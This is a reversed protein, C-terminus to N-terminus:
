HISAVTENKVCFYKLFNALSSRLSTGQVWQPRTVCIHAMLSIMIAEPLPKYGPRRWAMIQVLTPIDNIAGTPVFELSFRISIINSENLLIRKFTDDQFHCGNQRPRLTNLLSTALIRHRRGPVHPCRCSEYRRFSRSNCQARWASLYRKM